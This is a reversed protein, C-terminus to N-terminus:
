IPCYKCRGPVVRRLRIVGLEERLRSGLRRKEVVTKELDHFETSDKISIELRAIARCAEPVRERALADDMTGLQVPGFNPTVLGMGARDLRVQDTITYGADGKLWEPYEVRLIDGGKTVVGELGAVALTKLLRDSAVRTEILKDLSRRQVQEIATLQDRKAAYTWIPSRPLHQRLASEILDDDPEPVMRPGGTIESNLRDAYRRLDDYHREVATRLVLTRAERIEREERALEIQKRVTRIDYHDKEAIQPPSEDNEESRRLWERRLEASIPPKKPV